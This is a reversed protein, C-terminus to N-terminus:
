RSLCTDVEPLPDCRAASEFRTGGRYVASLAAGGDRRDEPALLAAAPTIHYGQVKRAATVQLEPDANDGIHPGRNDCYQQDQGCAAIRGCRLCM